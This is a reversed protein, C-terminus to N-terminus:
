YIRMITLVLGFSNKRFIIFTRLEYGMLLFNKRLFIKFQVWNFYKLHEGEDKIAMKSSMNKNWNLCSFLKTYKLQEGVNGFYMGSNSSWNKCCFVFQNHNLIIRSLHKCTKCMFLNSNHFSTMSWWYIIQAKRKTFSDNFVVISTNVNDKLLYYSNPTRIVIIYIKLKCLSKQKLCHIRSVFFSGINTLLYIGFIFCRKFFSNFKLITLLKENWQFKLRM